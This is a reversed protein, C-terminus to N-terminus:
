TPSHHQPCITWTKIIGVEMVNCFVRVICWRSFKTSRKVEKWSNWPSVSITRAPKKKCSYEPPLRWTIYYNLFGRVMESLLLPEITQQVLRSVRHLESQWTSCLAWSRRVCGGACHMPEPSREGPSQVGPSLECHYQINDSVNTGLGQEM